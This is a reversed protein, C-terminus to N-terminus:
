SLISLSWFTVALVTFSQTSIQLLNEYIYIQCNIKLHSSLGLVVVVFTSLNSKMLILFKQTDLMMLTLHHTFLCRIFPLFYKCSMCRIHNQYENKIFIKEIFLCVVWNLLHAFYKFLSEKEWLLYVFLRCLVHFPMLMRRWLPFALWLWM